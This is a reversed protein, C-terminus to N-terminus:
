IRALLPVGHLKKVPIYQTDAPSAYGPGKELPWAYGRPAHVHFGDARREIRLTVTGGESDHITYDPHLWCRKQDDVWMGWPTIFAHQGVQMDKVSPKILRKPLKAQRKSLLGFM